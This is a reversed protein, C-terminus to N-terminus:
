RLREFRVTDGARLLSPEKRLPDFLVATTSGIIHWGGPTVLPYVATQLGAIAVSGAAIRPRPQERRALALSADLESLYAFGPVFGIIDVRYSRGSHRAIVEEESLGTRAAVDSLDLGDYRTPLVHERGPAAQIGSRAGRECVAVVEAAIDAYSRQLCDYFVAISLYSPVIDEAAPINAAALTAATAHIRELLASTRETGFVVSVAFDGLPHAYLAIM